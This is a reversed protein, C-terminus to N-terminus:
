QCRSPYLTCDVGDSNYVHGPDRPWRQSKDVTKIELPKLMNLDVPKTEPAVAQPTVKVPETIRKSQAASAAPAAAQATAAEQALTTLPAILVAAWALTSWKM